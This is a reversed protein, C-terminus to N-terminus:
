SIAPQQGPRRAKRKKGVAWLVGLGGALLPLTGPLPTSAVINITSNAGGPRTAVITYLATISYPASLIDVLNTADASANTLPGTFLHSALSTTLAFVGNGSDFYTAETVSIGTTLINETFSSLVNLVGLPDTIDSLTVYVKLTGASSATNNSNTSFSNGGFGTLGSAVNSSFTGYSISAISFNDIGSGENTIAGGNVTSQQLGISVTVANAASVWLFSAAVGGLAVLRKSFM